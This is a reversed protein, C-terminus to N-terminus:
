SLEQSYGFLDLWKKLPEAEKRKFLRSFNQWSSQVGLSLGAEIKEHSPTRAALKKATITFHHLSEFSNAGLFALINQTPVAELHQYQKNNLLQPLLQKIRDAVEIVNSGPQRQINLIVAPKGNM